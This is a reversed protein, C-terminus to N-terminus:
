GGGPSGSGGLEAEAEIEVKWRPDMLGAVVVITSAPRIEGFVVAHAEGVADGDGRDVVYMRTRVVQVLAAGAEELSAAVIELCRATQAAPDPDCSGDPWIPATGAVLVRDGSRVARSFGYRSEYPSGSSVRARHVAVGYPVQATATGPQPIGPAAPYCRVPTDV